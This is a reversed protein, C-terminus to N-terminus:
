PSTLRKDAGDNIAQVAARLWWLRREDTERALLANVVPLARPGILRLRAVAAARDAYSQSYLASVIGDLYAGQDFEIEFTERMIPGPELRRNYFRVELVHSGVALERLELAAIKGFHWAGDDLRWEMHSSGDVDIQLRRDAASEGNAWSLRPTGVPPLQPILVLSNCEFLREGQRGVYVAVFTTWSSRRFPSAENPQFVRVVEGRWGKWLEGDQLVWWVGEADQHASKAQAFDLQNSLWDPWEGVKTANRHNVRAAPTEQRTGDAAFVHHKDTFVTWPRGDEGFGWRWRPTYNSYTALVRWAGQEWLRLEAKHGVLARGDSSIAPLDRSEIRVTSANAAKEPQGARHEILRWGTEWRRWGGPANPDREWAPDDLNSKPFLAVRGLEDVWLGGYAYPSEYEDPLPWDHWRGGDWHRVMSGGDRRKHVLWLRGDTARLVYPTFMEAGSASVRHEDASIGRLAAPLATVVGGEGQFMLGGHKLRLIQFVRDLYFGERWDPVRVRGSGNDDGTLDIMFLGRMRAAMLLGDSWTWDHLGGVPTQMGRPAYTWGGTHGALTWEGDRCIWIESVNRVAERRGPTVLAVELGDAPQCWDIIRQGPPSSRRSATGNVVDVDWLGENEVAWVTKGDVSRAVLSVQADVPLGALVYDQRLRGDEVLMPKALLDAHKADTTGILAWVWGRGSVEPTYVLPSYRRRQPETLKGAPLEWSRPAGGGAPFHVLHPAKFTFWVGGDADFTVRPEVVSRESAFGATPNEVEGLLVGTPEGAVHRWIQLARVYDGTPKWVSLLAAPNMPDAAMDVITARRPWSAQDDVRRWDGSEWCVLEQGDRGHRAGWVTGDGGAAVRYIPGPHLTLGTRVGAESRTTDSTPSLTEAVPLDRAIRDPEHGLAPAARGGSIEPPRCAPLGAIALCLVALARHKM